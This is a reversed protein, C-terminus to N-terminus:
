KTLRGGRLERLQTLLACAEDFTVSLELAIYEGADCRALDDGHAGPFYTWPAHEVVFGGMLAAIKAAVVDEETEPPSTRPASVGAWDITRGENDSDHSM